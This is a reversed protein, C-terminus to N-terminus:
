PEFDRVEPRAASREHVALPHVARVKMLSILHEDGVHREAEAHLSLLASTKRRTVPLRARMSREETSTESASSVPQAM